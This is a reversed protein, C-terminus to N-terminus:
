GGKQNTNNECDFVRCWGCLPTRRKEFEGSAMDDQIQEVINNIKAWTGSFDSLDYTQGVRCERLWVFSGTVTTLQPNAAKLLLAHIQLEFASEYKSNALKWDFIAASTGSIVAVDVQGRGAVDKAFYETPRADKTVALRLEVQCKFPDLAAAFPEWQRMRAPLPKKGQVREQLATHAQKGEEQEPSGVYPIDKKIYTRFFQYPCTDDYLKLSTYAWQYPKFQPQM